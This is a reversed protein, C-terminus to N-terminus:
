YKVEKNGKIITNRRERIKFKNFFRHIFSLDSM